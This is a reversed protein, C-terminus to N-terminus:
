GKYSGRLAAEEDRRAKAARRARKAEAALQKENMAPQFVSKKAPKAAPTAPAVPTNEEGSEPKKRFAVFLVVGLLTVMGGIFLALNSTIAEVM